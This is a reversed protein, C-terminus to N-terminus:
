VWLDRLRATRAQQTASTVVVLPPRSPSHISFARVINVNMSQTLIPSLNAAQVVAGLMRLLHNPVHACSLAAELENAAQCSLCRAVASILDVDAAM